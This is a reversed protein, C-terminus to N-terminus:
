VMLFEPFFFIKPILKDFDNDNNSVDDFSKSISEFKLVVILKSRKVFGIWILVVFINMLVGYSEFKYIGFLNYQKILIIFNM